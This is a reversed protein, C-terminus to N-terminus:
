ADYRAKLRADQPTIATRRVSLCAKDTPTSNHIAYCNADSPGLAASSYMVMARAGNLTPLPERSALICAPPIRRRIRHDGGCFQCPQHRVGDGRGGGGTRAGM